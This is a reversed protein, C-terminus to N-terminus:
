VPSDPAAFSLTGELGGLETDTPLLAFQDNIDKM